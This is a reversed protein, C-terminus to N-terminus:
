RSLGRSVVGKQANESKEIVALLHSSQMESINCLRLILTAIAIPIIAPARIRRM